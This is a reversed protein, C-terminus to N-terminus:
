EAGALKKELLKRVEELSGFEPAGERQWFNWLFDAGFDHLCCCDLLREVFAEQDAGAFLRLLEGQGQFLEFALPGLEYWAPALHADAWDIVVLSGDEQVLLNEGTLDGHTLVLGKLELGELRALMEERLSPALKKLRPNERAEQRLDRPSLVGTPRHLRALLTQLQEVFHEQQKGSSGALWDGAEKGPSYATLLYYFDYRDKVMGHGLVPPTPIGWAAGQRAAALETHYDATPDLGSERPFFIKVVVDGCRFVGNTGPTLPSLETWPLGERRFIERALPTFAAKNQFVRAWDKWNEVTETFLSM